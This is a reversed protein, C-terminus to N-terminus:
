SKHGRGRGLFFFVCTNRFQQLRHCVGGGYVGEKKGMKKESEPAEITYVM